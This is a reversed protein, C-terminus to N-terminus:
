GLDCIYMYKLTSVEEYIAISKEYQELQAAYQAVKVLCKNASSDFSLCIINRFM